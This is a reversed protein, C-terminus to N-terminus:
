GNPVLPKGIAQHDAMLRSQWFSYSVIAIHKAGPEDDDPLFDRGLTPRIGLTSFFNASVKRGPTREAPGFGSYVVDAPRFAAVQDFVRNERRWDLYNPYSVPGWRGRNEELMLVLRDADPYPLPRLIVASAISFIATNAGIGLALTIVAVATFGLRKRQIRVAFRLDDILTKM